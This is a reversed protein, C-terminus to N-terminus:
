KPRNIKTNKPTFLGTPMTKELEIAVKKLEDSMEGGYLITEQEEKTLKQDYLKDHEVKLIAKMDRTGIEEFLAHLITEDKVESGSDRMAQLILVGFEQLTIKEESLKKVLSRATFGLETDEPRLFIEDIHDVGSDDTAHLITLGFQDDWDPEFLFKGNNEDKVVLETLKDRLEDKSLNSPLTYINSSLVSINKRIIVEFNQTSSTKESM